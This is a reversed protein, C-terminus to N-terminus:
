KAAKDEALMKIAADMVPESSRAKRCEKALAPTLPVAVSRQGIGVYVKPADPWWDIREGDAARLETQIM